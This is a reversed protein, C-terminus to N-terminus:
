KVGIIKLGYVDIFEKVLEEKNKPNMIYEKRLVRLAKRISLYKTRKEFWEKVLPRDMIYQGLLWGVFVGIFIALEEM